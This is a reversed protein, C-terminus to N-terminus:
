PWMELESTPWDMGNRVWYEVTDGGMITTGIMKLGAERLKQEDFGAPVPVEFQIPAKVIIARDVVKADLFLRATTPGGEVMVHNLGRSKLDNIIDSPLLATYRQEHDHHHSVPHRKMEVFSVSDSMQSSIEEVNAGSVSHYILTPLGDKLLVFDKGIVKFEPDLVVRVPQVMGEGMEVRRVTLSCDDREVTGRGVLVASSERRLRHVMDLSQPSTFRVSTPSTESVGWTQDFAMKLTVGTVKPRNINEEDNKSSSLSSTSQRICIPYNSSSHKLFRHRNAITTARYLGGGADPSFALVLGAWSVLITIISTFLLCSISPPTQM